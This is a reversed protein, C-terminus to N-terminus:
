QVFSIRSTELMIDTNMRPDSGIVTKSVADQKRSITFYFGTAFTYFFSKSQFLCLNKFPFFISFFLLNNSLKKQTTTRLMSENVRQIIRSSKLCELRLGHFISLFDRSYKYVKEETLIFSFLSFNKILCKESDAFRATRMEVNKINLSKLEM